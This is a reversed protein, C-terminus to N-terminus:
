EGIFRNIMHYLKYVLENCKKCIFFYCNDRDSYFQYFDKGHCKNCMQKETQQTEKMLEKIDKM